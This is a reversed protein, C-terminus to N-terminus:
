FFSVSFSPHPMVGVYTHEMTTTKKNTVDCSGNDCTFEMRVKDTKKGNFPDCRLEVASSFCLYLSSVKYNDIEILVTQCTAFIITKTIQASLILYALINTQLYCPTQLISFYPSMLYDIVATVDCPLTGRFFM